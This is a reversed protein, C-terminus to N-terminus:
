IKFTKELSDKKVEEIAELIDFVDCSCGCCGCCVTALLIGVVCEDDVMDSSLEMLLVLVLLLELEHLLNCCCVLM